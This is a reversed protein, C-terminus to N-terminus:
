TSGHDSGEARRKETRADLMRLRAASEDHQRESKERELQRQKEDM